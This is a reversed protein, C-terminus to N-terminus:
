SSFVTKRCRERRKYKKETQRSIEDLDRGSFFDPFFIEQEGDGEIFEVQIRIKGFSFFARDGMRIDLQHEATRDPEVTLLGVTGFGAFLQFVIRDPVCIRMLPGERHPILPDVPHGARCIGVAFFAAVDDQCVEFEGFFGTEDLEPKVLEFIRDIEVPPTGLRRVPEVLISADRGGDFPDFGFFPDLERGGPFAFLQRQIDVANRGVTGDTGTSSFDRM